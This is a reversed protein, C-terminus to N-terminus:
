APWRRSIVAAACARCATPDLARDADGALKRRAPQGNILALVKRALLTRGGALGAAGLEVAAHFSVRM